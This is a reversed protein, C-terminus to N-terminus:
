APDRVEASLGKLLKDIDESSTDDARLREMAAAYERWLSAKGPTRDLETAMARLAQIAAADVQELRGNATLSSLTIELAAANSKARRPKAM